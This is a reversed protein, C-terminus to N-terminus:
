IANRWGHLVIDPNHFINQFVMKYRIMLKQVNELSMARDISSTPPNADVNTRELASSTFFANM